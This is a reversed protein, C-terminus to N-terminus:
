QTSTEMVRRGFRAGKSMSKLLFHPRSPKQSERTLEEIDREREREGFDRRQRASKFFLLEPDHKRSTVAAESLGKSARM